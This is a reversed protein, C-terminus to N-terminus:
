FGHEQVTVGYRQEFAEKSPRTTWFICIGLCFLILAYLNHELLIIIIMYLNPAEICAWRILSNQRYHGMKQEINLLSPINKESNRYTRFGFYMAGAMVVSATWLLVSDANSTLVSESILVFVTLCCFLLQAALLAFFLTNLQQFYSKM